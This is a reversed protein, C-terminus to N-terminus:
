EDEEKPELYKPSPVREIYDPIDSVKGTFWPNGVEIEPEGDLSRELELVRQEVRDIKDRLAEIAPIPDFVTKVKTM